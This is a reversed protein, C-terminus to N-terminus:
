FGYCNNKTFFHKHQFICNSNDSKTEHQIASFPFCCIVKAKGQRAMSSIACDLSEGSVDIDLFKQYFRSHVFYLHLGSFHQPLNEDKMNKAGTYIGGTYLDYDNPKKSLFYDFGDPSPFHCDDEMICVEELGRDKADEVIQKHAKAINERPASESTIGEWLEYDMINQTLLENKLLELRDGRNNLHIINIKM